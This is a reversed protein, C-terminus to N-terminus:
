VTPSYIYVYTSFSVLLIQLGGIVHRVYILAVGLAIYVRSVCQPQATLAIYIARHHLQSAPRTTLSLCCEQVHM